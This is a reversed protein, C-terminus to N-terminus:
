SKLKDLETNKDNIRKDLSTISGLKDALDKELELLESEENLRHKQLLINIANFRDNLEHIREQDFGEGGQLRSINSSADDLELYVSNIQNYLAEYEANIDQIKSLEQKLSALQELVGGNGSLM